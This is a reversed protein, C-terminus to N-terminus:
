GRRGTLAPIPRKEEGAYEAALPDVMVRHLAAAAFRRVDARGFCFIRGRYILHRPREREFPSSPCWIHPRM